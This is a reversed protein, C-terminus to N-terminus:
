GGAPLKREILRLLDGVCELSDVERSSLKVRLNQEVLLVIEIQKFSDWGKVDKATFEPRIVLSDDAFVERFIATLRALVSPDVPATTSM